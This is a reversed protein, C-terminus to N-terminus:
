KRGGEPRDHGTAGALLYLLECRAMPYGAREAQARYSDSKHEDPEVGNPGVRYLVSLNFLADPYRQNAAKIFWKEARVFNQPVGVGKAYMIGLRDQAIADGDVAAMQILRVTQIPNLYGTPEWNMATQYAASANRLCVPPPGCLRPLMKYGRFDLAEVLAGVPLERIRRLAMRQEFSPLSEDSHLEGKATAGPYYEYPAMWFRARKEADGVIRGADADFNRKIAHRENAAYNGALPHGLNQAILFYTLAEADNGVFVSAVPRLGYIGGSFSSGGGYNGGGFNGGSYNSGGYNSGGYTSGGYNAGGGNYSSGTSGGPFGGYSGDGSGTGVTVSGTQPPPSSVLNPNGGTTGTSNLAVTNSTDTTGTMMGGSTSGASAFNDAPEPPLASSFCQYDPLRRQWNEQTNAVWKWVPAHPYPNSTVSSWLYWLWSSYWHDWASRMCMMALPKPPSIFGGGGFNGDGYNGGGFSSGSAHIRGLTLFGEAGRSSLIYLIRARADLRQEFTLSNYIQEANSLANNRVNYVTDAASANDDALYDRNPRLAMFYWVYAEVPDIFSGNKSEGPGLSQNAAYLDGLRIQALFDDRQWAEQRWVRVADPLTLAQETRGGDAYDAFTATAFAVVMVSALAFALSWTRLRRAVASTKRDDGSRKGGSRTDRDSSQVGSLGVMGLAM